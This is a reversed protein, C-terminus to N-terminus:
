QNLVSLVPSGTLNATNTLTCNITAATSTATATTSLTMQNLVYDIALITTGAPVASAIAATAGVAIDNFTTCNRVIASGSTTNGVLSSTVALSFMNSIAYSGSTASPTFLVKGASATTEAKANVSSTSKNVVPCHGGRQLWLYYTGAAATGAGTDVRGVMVSKGVAAGSTVLLTANYDKDVLYCEGDHMATAGSQVLKCLVYTAENDGMAVTGLAGPATYTDTVPGILATPGAGIVSFEQRAYSM